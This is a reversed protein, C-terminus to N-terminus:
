SIASRLDFCEIGTENAVTLLAEDRSALALGQDLALALYSPTSYASGRGDRWLPSNISSRPGASPASRLATMSRWLPMTMGDLFVGRREMALLVNRVEWEFIGPAEFILRGSDRLLSAAASRPRIPCCGHWLERLMWFSRLRVAGDEKLDEWTLNQVEPNRDRDIACASSVPWSNRAPGRAGPSLDDGDNAPSLKAVARGHRTITVTEGEKEVVDLLASLHTKAELVGVERM